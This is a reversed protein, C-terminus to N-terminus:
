DDKDTFWQNDYRTDCPTAARVIHEQEIVPVGDATRSVQYIADYGIEGLFRDVERGPLSSTRTLGFPRIPVDSPADFSLPEPSVDPLPTGRYLATM